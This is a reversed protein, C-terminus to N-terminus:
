ILRPGALGELFLLFHNRYLATELSMESFDKHAEKFMKKKMVSVLFM